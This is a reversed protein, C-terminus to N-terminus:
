KENKKEAEDFLGADRVIIQSAEIDIKIVFEAVAPFMVENGTATKILYVDNAPYNMVDTVKGLLRKTDQQLVECGILDSIYHLDTPLEVRQDFAVALRRNTLRAAAERSKIGVFKIVPRGGVMRTSEINRAEWGDHNSVFIQELGQFRDPFDTLPTIWLEGHIGRTRGLQGM